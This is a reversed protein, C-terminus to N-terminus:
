APRYHTVRVCGRLSKIFDTIKDYCVECMHCEHSELDKNSYYGWRAFLTAYEFVDSEGTSKNCSSRCIDCEYGYVKEERVERKLEVM